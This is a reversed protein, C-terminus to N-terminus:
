WATNEREGVHWGRLWADRDEPPTVPALIQRDGAVGADFGADFCRSLMPSADIEPSNGQPLSVVRRWAARSVRAFRAAITHFM